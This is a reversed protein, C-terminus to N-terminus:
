IGLWLKSLWGRSNSIFLVLIVLGTKEPIEVEKIGQLSILQTFFIYLWKTTDQLYQWFAKWFPEEVYDNQKSCRVTGM